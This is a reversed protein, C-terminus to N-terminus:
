EKIPIKEVWRKAADYYDIANDIEECSEQTNLCKIITNTNEIIQDKLKKTLM